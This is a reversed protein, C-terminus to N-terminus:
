TKGSAAGAVKEAVAFKEPHNHIYVEVVFMVTNVFLPIWPIVNAIGKFAWRGIKTVHPDNKARFWLWLSGAVGNRLVPSIVAGIVTYDLALCMADTTFTYLFGVMTESLTFDDPNPGGAGLSIDEKKSTNATQKAAGGTKKPLEAM